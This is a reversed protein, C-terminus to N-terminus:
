SNETAIRHLVKLVSKAISKIKEQDKGCESGWISGPWARDNKYRCIIHIHLQPVMNGLAGTNIKDASFELFLEKSLLSIETILSRQDDKSLEFIEKIDKRKPILVVWPNQSDPLLRVQCLNLDGILDTDKELQPHLTFM